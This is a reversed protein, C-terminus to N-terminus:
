IKEKVINERILQQNNEESIVHITYIKVCIWGINTFLTGLIMRFPSIWHEARCFLDYRQFNTQFLSSFIYMRYIHDKQQARGFFFCKPKSVNRFFSEIKKRRHSVTLIWEIFIKKGIFCSRAMNGTSTTGGASTVQDIKMGTKEYLFERVFKMSDQIRESTPAWKHTGSQLHYILQM